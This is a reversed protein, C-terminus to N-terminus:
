YFIVRTIVAGYQSKNMASLKICKPTTNATFLIYRWSELILHKKNPLLITSWQSTTPAYRDNSSKVGPKLPSPLSLQLQFM